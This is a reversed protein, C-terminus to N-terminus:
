HAYSPSFQIPATRNLQFVPSYGYGNYGHSYHNGYFPASYGSYGSYGHDSLKVPGYALVSLGKGYSVYQVPMPKDYGYGYAPTYYKSDINAYTVPTIKETYGRGYSPAYFEHDYSVVKVPAAKEPYGHNYGYAPATTYGYAPSVYKVPAPASYEHGGYYVPEVPKQYVPAYSTTYVPQKYHQKYIGAESRPQTGPIVYAKGYHGGYSDYGGYVYSAEIAAVGVAFLVLVARIMIIFRLLIFVGM